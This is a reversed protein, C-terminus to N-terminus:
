VDETLSKMTQSLLRAVALSQRADELANHEERDDFGVLRFLEDSTFAGFAVIGLSNTDIHRNSFFIHVGHSFMLDRLFELDFSVVNHGLLSVPCDFGWYKIIINGILEVAEEPTLGTEELHEKSLGHVSQAKSSWGSKGDWKITFYVSEIEDFTTASAVVLGISVIQFYETDSKRCPNDNERNTYMGSTEVDIALVKEFYGKPKM